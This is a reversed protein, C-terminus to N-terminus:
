VRPPEDVGLPYGLAPKIGWLNPEILTARLSSAVYLESFNLMAFAPPCVENDVVDVPDAADIQDDDSTGSDGLAQSLIGLWGGGCRPARVKGSLPRSGSGENTALISLRAPRSSSRDSPTPSALTTTADGEANAALAQMTRAARLGAMSLPGSVLMLLMVLVHFFRAVRELAHLPHRIKDLRGWSKARDRRFGPRATASHRSSAASPAPM